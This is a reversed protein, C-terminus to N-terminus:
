VTLLWYTVIARNFCTVVISLIKPTRAVLAQRARRHHLRRHRHQRQAQLALCSLTHLLAQFSDANVQGARAVFSSLTAVTAGHHVGLTRSKGTIRVMRPAMDWQLFETILSHEAAAQSSVARIYSSCPSTPRSQLPSPSNRWPMWLRSSMMRRGM